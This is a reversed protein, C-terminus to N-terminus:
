MGQDDYLMGGSGQRCQIGRKTRKDEQEGLSDQSTLQMKATGFDGM